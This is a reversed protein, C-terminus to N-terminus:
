RARDTGLENTEPRILMKLRETAYAGFQYVDCERCNVGRRTCATEELMWCPGIPDYFARCSECISRDCDRINWCPLLALLRRLGEINLGLSKLMHRIAKIRRVDAMSLLRRGTPTRHFLLLGEREYKRIASVSLDVMKAATGISIMPVRDASSEAREEPVAETVLKHFKERIENHKDLM